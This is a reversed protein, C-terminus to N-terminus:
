GGSIILPPPTYGEPTRPVVFLSLWLLSVVIEATAIIIAYKVWYSFSLHKGRREMIGIAVINATSGIPTYNGAMTGSFLLAWFYPFVNWGQIEQISFIVPILVSIALVNDLFATLVGQVTFVSLLTGMYSSNLAEGVLSGLAITYEGLKTSAGTYKLTGITSFLLMFFMLTWWDVRHTIIDRARRREILLAISSWLMPTAILLINKMSGPSLGLIKELLEELPHHLALMGITGLFLIWNVKQMRRIEEGIEIRMGELRFRRDMDAVYSKWLFLSLVITVALAMIANPTSWHIFDTFTFGGRLAVIVGIPNGVVTASSGINTTFVSAIVFPTPDIKLRDSIKLIFMTIFVISTVEDVLAAMLFALALVIIYLSVGSRIRSGIADLLYDFFHREELTGIITMMGILFVIVDLQAFVIFHQLDLLGLIFLISIGLLAFALRFQWYLLTATIFLMLIGFSVTQRPDFGGYYALTSLLLPILVVLAPRVSRM